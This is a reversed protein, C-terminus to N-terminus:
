RLNIYVIEEKSQIDLKLGSLNAILSFITWYFGLILKGTGRKWLAFSVILIIPAPLLLLPFIILWALFLPLWIGFRRGCKSRVRLKLFLPIM